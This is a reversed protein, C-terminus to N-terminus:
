EALTYRGETAQRQARKAAEREAEGARLFEEISDPLGQATLDIIEEGVRGPGTGSSGRGQLWLRMLPGKGKM